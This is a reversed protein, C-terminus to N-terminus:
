NKLSGDYLTDKSEISDKKIHEQISLPKKLKCTQNLTNNM